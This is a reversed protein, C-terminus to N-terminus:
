ERLRRGSVIAPKAQSPQTAWGTLYITEFTARLKGDPESYDAAYRELLAALTRRRLTRRSREVLANTEGLSRLDRILTFFEGYRVTVRDIDAVPMSFGARQLLAGLDRVDAFPAV